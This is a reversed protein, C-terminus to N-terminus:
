GRRGVGVQAAGLFEIVEDDLLATVGDDAQAINGGDFEARLVVVRVHAEVTRLGVNMPTQTNGVALVSSTMWATRLTTGSISFDRGVGAHLDAHGVIRGFVDLVGDVLDDVRDPLGEEDDDADDEQEQATEARHMMGTTAMGIESIPAANRISIKPKM